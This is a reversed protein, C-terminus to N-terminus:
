YFDKAEIPKSSLGLQLIEVQSARDFVKGPFFYKVLLRVGGFGIGAVLAFLLIVGTGVITGVLIQSISPDTLKHRPENWTVEGKYHIQQLLLDAVAPSRTHAVLAVLSSSRRAFLVSRGESQEEPTNLPLWHGLEELKRAAV